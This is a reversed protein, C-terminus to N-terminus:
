KKLIDESAFAKSTINAFVGLWKQCLQVLEEPQNSLLVIREDIDGQSLNTTAGNAKIRICQLAINVKATYNELQIRSLTDKHEDTYKRVWEYGSARDSDSISQYSLEVKGKLLPCTKTYSGASLISILVEDLEEETCTYIVKDEFNRVQLFREMETLEKKEVVVDSM